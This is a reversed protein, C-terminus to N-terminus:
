AITRIICDDTTKSTGTFLEYLMKGTLFGPFIDRKSIVDVPTALINEKLDRIKVTWKLSKKRHIPNERDIEFIQGL